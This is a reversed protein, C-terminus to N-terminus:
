DVMVPSLEVVEYDSDYTIEEWYDFSIVGRYNYFATRVAVNEETARWGGDTASLRDMYVSFEVTADPHAAIFDQKQQWTFGVGRLWCVKLNPMDDFITPDTLMYEHCLNVDELKTLARLPSLDTIRMCAFLELYRLETLNALPSIDRLYPNDALILVQLEPLTSLLTLDQLDNHGLDLAKLHRCYKFLPALDNSGFRPEKESGGLLSSFVQIDSRVTWRGFRVMWLFDVKPNAEMLADKEENPVNVELLDVRRVRPLLHLAEMLGETSDPSLETTELSNLTEGRYDVLWEIRCDPLAEQLALLAEYERCATADVHELQTWDAYALIEEASEDTLVLETPMPTPSPTPEPTPEPAPETGPEPSSPAAADSRADSGHAERVSEEGPAATEAACACLLLALCLVIATLKKM